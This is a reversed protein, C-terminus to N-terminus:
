EESDKLWGLYWIRDQDNFFVTERRNGRQTIHHPLGALVTRAFRLMYMFNLVMLVRLPTGNLGPKNDGPIGRDLRCEFSNIPHIELVLTIPSGAEMKGLESIDLETIYYSSAGHAVWHEYGCNEVGMTMGSSQQRPDMSVDNALTLSAVGDKKDHHFVLFSSDLFL